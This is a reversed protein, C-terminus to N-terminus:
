SAKPKRRNNAKQTSPEGTLKVTTTRKKTIPAPPVAHKTNLLSTETEPLVQNTFEQDLILRALLLKEKEQYLGLRYNDIRIFYAKKFGELKQLNPIDSLQIAAELNQLVKVLALKTKQPVQEVDEVFLTYYKYNM